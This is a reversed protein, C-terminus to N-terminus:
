PVNTSLLGPSDIAAISAGPDTRAHSSIAYRSVLLSVIGNVVGAFSIIALSARWGAHVHASIVLAFAMVAARVSDRLLHLDQRRLVDIVFGFPASVFGAYIMPSLILLYMSADRWREGFVRPLFLPVVFLMPLLIALGIFGVQFGRRRFISMLSKPDARRLEAFDGFVLQGLNVTLLALPMALVRQVLTFLGASAPGFQTAIFLLPMAGTASDLLVAPSSYLPFRKYARATAILGLTSIQEFMHPDQRRVQRWLRLVGASSGLILGAILGTAGLKIAGFLIQSGAQLVGQTVKTRGITAFDRRRVMWLSLAAYSASACMGIPLWWILRGSLSDRLSPVLTPLGALILLACLSSTLVISLLAVILVSAAEADQKPYPIALDYRLAAVVMVLSLTTAFVGLSGFQSPSYLRAVLPSAVIVILGGLATAGSLNVLNTAFPSSRLHHVPHKLWDPVATLTSVLIRSRNAYTPTSTAAGGSSVTRVGYRSFSPWFASSTELAALM